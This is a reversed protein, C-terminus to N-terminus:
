DWNNTERKATHRFGLIIYEKNIAKLNPISGKFWAFQIDHRIHHHCIMDYLPVIIRVPVVHLFFGKSFDISNPTAKFCIAVWKLCFVSINRTLLSCVQQFGSQQKQNSLFNLFLIFAFKYSFRYSIYNRNNEHLFIWLIAPLVLLYQLLNSYCICKIKESIVQIVFSLLDEDVIPM